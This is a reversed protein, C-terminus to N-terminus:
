HKQRPWEDPLAARRIPEAPPGAKGRAAFMVDALRDTRGEFEMAAGAAALAEAPRGLALAVEALRSQAMPFGADIALVGRLAERAEALRGERFLMNADLSWATAHFPSEARLRSLEARLAPRQMSDASAAAIQPAAEYGGRLMRYAFREAVAAMAGSRRVYVTAVDDVFVLAFATDADLIDNSRDQHIRYRRFLVWDFQHRRDLSKWANDDVFALAALRRDEPTGTVHIDMFPLRDRQPHFRWLLYGGYEYHNYARGRIEHREIFDCAAVPRWEPEIGFGPTLVPNTWEVSLGGICLASAVAARPWASAAWRPARLGALVQALDRAMFPVAVVSLFGLFRNSGLGQALFLAAIAIEAPDFGFRRARWLILLPWGAALLWLLNRVNHAWAVPELEGIQKFILEHRWTTWYEIPQVLTKWGGPTLFSVAASVVFLMALPAVWARREPNRRGAWWADALYVAQLALGIWYSIHVNTWVLAIAPLAVAPWHWAAAPGRARRLSEHVLLQLAILVFVLSEPRPEARMRLPLAAWAMVVLASFGTAGMRRAACWGLGLAALTTLWRWVFLGPMGGGLDWFQYLLARFGWSPPVEARGYLPWTWIQTAPVKGERVIERGVALHQWFDTDMIRFTVAAVVCAAAVLLAILFAPHALPVPPVSM